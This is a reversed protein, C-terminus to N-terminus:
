LKPFPRHFASTAEAHLTSGPDISLEVVYPLLPLQGQNTKGFEQWRCAIHATGLVWPSTTEITSVVRDLM